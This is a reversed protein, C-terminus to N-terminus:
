EYVGYLTNEALTAGEGIDTTSLTLSPKNAIQGTTAFQYDVIEGSGDQFLSFEAVDAGMYMVLWAVREGLGNNYFSANCVEFFNAGINLIITTGSNFATEIEAITAGAWTFEDEYQQDPTITITLPSAGGGGTASIVNNADITINTGATYTTNTASITNGSITINSGATLKDQKGALATQDVLGKGEIVNELTGKSIFYNSSASGYTNYSANSAYLVGASTAGTGTTSSTKIVGGTASNAYNINAVGANVVSTGAIQVDSVGGGGGGTASIVNNNISIGTGATLTDQKAALLNDVQSDTYFDTDFQEGTGDYFLQTEITTDYDALYTAIVNINVGSTFTHLQDVDYVGDSGYNLKITTGAAFADAIQQTTAGSWTFSDYSGQQPTITITLISGGGGSNVLPSILTDGVRVSM